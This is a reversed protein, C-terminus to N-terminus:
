WRRRGSLLDDFTYEKGVVPRERPPLGLDGYDRQYQGELGDVRARNDKVRDEAIQVARGYKRINEDAERLRAEVEGIRQAIAARCDKAALAEGGGIGIASMAVSLVGGGVGGLLSGLISLVGTGSVVKGGTWLDDELRLLDDILRKLENQIDWRTNELRWKRSRVRELEELAAQEERRAAEIENRLEKRDEGPLRALLRESLEELSIPRRRLVVVTGGSLVLIGTGLGGVAALDRPSPGSGRDYIADSLDRIAGGGSLGGGTGAAGAGSGSRVCSKLFAFSTYGPCGDVGLGNTTPRREYVGVYGDDCISNGTYGIRGHDPIAEYDQVCCQGSLREWHFEVPCNKREPQQASAATGAIAWLLAVALVGTVGAAVLAVISRRLM